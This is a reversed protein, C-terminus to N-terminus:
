KIITIEQKTGDWNVTCDLLEAIVRLPVMTRGDKIYPAVDSKITKEQVGSTSGSENKSFTCLFEKKNIYMKITTKEKVTDVKTEEKIEPQIVENQEPKVEPQKPEDKEVYEKCYKKIDIEKPDPLVFLGNGTKTDFGETEVDILHDDIFDILEDRNLARGTKDIFFDQVLGCMACFTPTTFSTGTGYFGISVYDLEKGVSSYTAWKLKANAQLAGIAIHKDSKAEGLMGKTGKNGAACFFTTGNEICDQMAQEKTTSCTGGVQSTTFLHVKNKLIYDICNSSYKGNITKMDMPFAIYTADPCIDQLIRMISSGHWSGNTQYGKPCIVKQWREKDTNPYQKEIKEDSMIKVRSGTYGLERFKNIGLFEFAEDREM